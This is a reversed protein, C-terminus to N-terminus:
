YVRLVIMDPGDYVARYSKLFQAEPAMQKNWAFLGRSPRHLVIYKVHAHALQERQRSLDTLALRYLLTDGIERTTMGDVIPRRDCVQELMYSDEEAYGWPLNLVGFGREPDQKLVALGPHCAVPTAALNAPYFDVAILAAMAAVGARSALGKWRLATAAAFGIGISLFLYVFVVARSPTRVNAFFPLRDLASDPLPLFTAVGGVHLSEGCALVCFTLMGLAVYFTLSTRALGNRLCLWALVALNVLGLYVTSEWPHGPLRTYLGRSLGSLLHEPPFAVYALLDAVFINGGAAYVSPGSAMMMPVVLPSLIATATLVCLVPAALNWGRPWAHDRLRQTLLHFGMFYTCYFLYYWCSLASM